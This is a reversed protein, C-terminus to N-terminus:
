LSRVRPRERHFSREGAGALTMGERYARMEKKADSPVAKADSKASAMVGTEIVEVALLQVLQADRPRASQGNQLNIVFEFKTSQLVPQDAPKASKLIQGTYVGAQRCAAAL